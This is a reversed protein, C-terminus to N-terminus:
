QSQSVEFSIRQIIPDATVRFEYLRVFFRLSRQYLKIGGGTTMYTDIMRENWYFRDAGQVKFVWAHNVFLRELWLARRDAMDANKSWCAFEVVQDIPRKEVVVVKNPNEPLRLSHSFSSARQIRSTAQRNMRAPHRSVLKYTIVETGFRDFEENPFDSVIQVQQADVVGERTQCDMVLEQAVALFRPYDMSNPVLRSYDFAFPNALVQEDQYAVQDSVGDIIVVDFLQNEESLVASIKETLLSTESM